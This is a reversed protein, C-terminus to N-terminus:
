HLQPAPCIAQKEPGNARTLAHDRFARAPKRFLDREFLLNSRTEFRVSELPDWSGAGPFSVFLGSIISLVM